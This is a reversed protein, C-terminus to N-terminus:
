FDVAPEINAADNNQPCQAAPLDVRSRLSCMCSLKALPNKAHVTKLVGFLSQSKRATDELIMVVCGAGELLEM